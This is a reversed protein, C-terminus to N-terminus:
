LHMAVCRLHLIKLCSRTDCPKVLFIPIRYMIDSMGSTRENLIERGLSHLANYSDITKPCLCREFHDASPSLGRKDGEEMKDKKMKDEQLMNWKQKSM